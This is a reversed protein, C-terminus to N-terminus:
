VVKNEDKVSVSKFHSGNSHKKENSKQSHGSGRVHETGLALITGSGVSIASVSVITMRLALPFTVFWYTVLDTLWHAFRGFAGSTALFKSAGLALDLAVFRFALDAAGHLVAFNAFARLTVGDTLIREAMRLARVRLGFTLGYTLLRHAVPFAVTRRVARFGFAREDALFRRM